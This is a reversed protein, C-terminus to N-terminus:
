LALLYLRLVALLGLTWVISRAGARDTVYCYIYAVRMAIFIWGWLAIEDPDVEQLVALVVAAAFFPFAELSNSQAADARATAKKGPWGPGRTTTTTPARM